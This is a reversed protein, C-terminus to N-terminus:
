TAGGLPNRKLQPTRRGCAALKMRPNPPVKAASTTPLRQGLRERSALKTDEGSPDVQVSLM